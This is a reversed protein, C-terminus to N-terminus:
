AIFTWGEEYGVGFEWVNVEGTELERGEFSNKELVKLLLITSPSGGDGWRWRWIDGVKPKKM